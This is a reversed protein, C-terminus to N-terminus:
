ARHLCCHDFGPKDSAQYATQHYEAHKVSHITRRLPRPRETLIRAIFVSGTDDWKWRIKLIFRLPDERAQHKRCYRVSMKSMGTPIPGSSVRTPGIIIWSGVPMEHLSYPAQCADIRSRNFLGYVQVISIIDVVPRPQIGDKHSLPIQCIRLCLLQAVRSRPPKKIHSSKQPVFSQAIKSFLMFRTKGSRGM